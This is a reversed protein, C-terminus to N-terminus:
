SCLVIESSKCPYMCTGMSLVPCDYCLFMHYCKNVSGGICFWRGPDGEIFTEGSPGRYTLAIKMQSYDNAKCGM